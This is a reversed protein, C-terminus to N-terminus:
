QPINTQNAKMNFTFFDFVNRVAEHSTSILEFIFVILSIAYLFGCVTMLGSIQDLSLTKPEIPNNNKSLRPRKFARAWFVILGSSWYSNIQENFPKVLCSHKRYYMCIPMVQIKQKTKLVGPKPFNLMNFYDVSQSITQYAGKFDDNTLNQLDM